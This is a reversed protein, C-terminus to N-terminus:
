MKIKITYGQKLIQLVKSGKEDSRLKRIGDSHGSEGCEVGNKQGKSELIITKGRM